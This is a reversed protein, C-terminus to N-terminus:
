ATPISALNPSYLRFRNRGRAKADYLAADANKLLDNADCKEAALACVGVSASVPIERGDFPVSDALTAVINAAIEDAAHLDTL